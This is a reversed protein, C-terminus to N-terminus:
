VNVGALKSFRDIQQYHENYVLEGQGTVKYITKKRGGRVPSGSIISSTLYGKANLTKLTKYMAGFGITKGTEKKIFAIINIAYADETSLMVSAIVYSELTSLFKM